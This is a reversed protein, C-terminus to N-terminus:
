VQQVDEEGESLNNVALILCSKSAFQVMGECYAETRKVVAQLSDDMWLLCQEACSRTSALLSVRLLIVVRERGVMQVTSTSTITAPSQPLRKSQSALKMHYLPGGVISHIYEVQYRSKLELELHFM